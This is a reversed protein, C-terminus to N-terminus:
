HASYTGALWGAAFILLSLFVSGAVIFAVAVRHLRFTVMTHKM